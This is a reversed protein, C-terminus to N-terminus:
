LTLYKPKEVRENGFAFQKFLSWCYDESLGFLNHLPITGMISAVKKQRTTVVISSGNSGCALM